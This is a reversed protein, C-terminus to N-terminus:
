LPLEGSTDNSFTTIFIHLLDVPFDGHRLTIEIFNSQLKISVASRCSARRYIQQINKTGINKYCRKM